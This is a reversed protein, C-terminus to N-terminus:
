PVIPIRKHNGIEDPPWWEFPSLVLSAFSSPPELWLWMQGGYIEYIWVFQLPKAQNGPNLHFPYVLGLASFKLLYCPILAYFRKQMWLVLATVLVM